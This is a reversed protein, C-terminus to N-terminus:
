INCKVLPGVRSFFIQKILKMVSQLIDVSRANFIHWFSRLWLSVAALDQLTLGQRFM